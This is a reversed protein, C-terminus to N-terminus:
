SSRLAELPDAGAARRAPLWSAISAVAVVSLMVAAAILPMNTPPVRLQLTVIKWAAASLPVISALFLTIMGGVASAGTAEIIEARTEREMQALTQMSRVPIMPAEARAIDRFTAIMPAAPTRTRILLADPGPTPVALAGGMPTFIRVASGEADPGVDEASVVGVIEVEGLRRGRDLAPRTLRRGVPNIGGFALAAFDSGVVIPTAPAASDSEILDRGQLLRIGMAKFYGPPVQQTRAEFRRSASAGNTPVEISLVRYGNVQPVVAVVGPLASLREMVAPLRNDGQNVAAWTEFNARVVHESLERNVGRRNVGREGERAVVAIMMALMVLLPQTLAIQAVVFARQLRSRVTASRASDKLVGALADRTAHLAPSLGCLISAVIAFVATMMATAWTPGVDADELGDRLARYVLAYVVLGAAGAAVSLLTTETLLQRVIRGRSAGLALRVAIEHRRTVAAGVLLSSVTTTCVLLILLVLASILAVVQIDEARSSKFRVDGRLPVVDATFAGSTACPPAKCERPTAAPLAAAARSAVLEVAPVAQRVGVGDRLRAVASFSGIARNTFAGTLQDVVPWASVPMWLTLVEGDGFASLFRAPAVGVIVVTVGNVKLTRGVASAATGFQRLAFSHGIIASLEPEAHDGTKRQGFGAGATLRLGLTSFLNPTVFQLYATGAEQGDLEAVVVSETWGAVASFEPRGAYEMLEPYSFGRATRQGDDTGIGRIAVLSKDDPVGPAPRTLLGSVIGFAASSVGVGLTLTLVITAAMLPARAFHRVAHRLDGLTTEIWRGGRAERAAEEIVAVNGFERRAALMAEHTDMGRARFRETARALHETMDDKMDREAARRGFAARLWAHARGLASM